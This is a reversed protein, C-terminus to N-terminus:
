EGPTEASEANPTKKEAIERAQQPNNFRFVYSRGLIIRNGTRLQTKETVAKGNMYCLADDM